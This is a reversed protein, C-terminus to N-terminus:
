CIQYKSRSKKMAGTDTRKFAGLKGLNEKDDDAAAMNTAGVSIMLSIAATLKSMKIKKM